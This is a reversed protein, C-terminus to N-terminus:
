LRTWRASSRRPPEQTLRAAEGGDARQEQHDGDAALALLQEAAQQAEALSLTLTCSEGIEILVHRGSRAARMSALGFALAM